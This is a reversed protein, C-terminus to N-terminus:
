FIICRTMSWKLMNLSYIVKVEDDKGSLAADKERILEKLHAVLEEMQTLQETVESFRIDSGMDVQPSGPAQSLCLIIIFM